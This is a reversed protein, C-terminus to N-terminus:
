TIQISKDNFALEFQLMEWWIPDFQMPISENWILIMKKWNERNNWNSEISIISDRNIGKQAWMSQKLNPLWHARDEAGQWPRGSDSHAVYSKQVKFLMNYCTM